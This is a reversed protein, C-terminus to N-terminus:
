GDKLRSLRGELVDLPDRIPRTDRLLAHEADSLGWAAGVHSALEREVKLRRRLFDSLTSRGAAHLPALAETDASRPSRGALKALSAAFRKTTAPLWGITKEVDAMDDSVGASGCAEATFSREWAAQEDALALLKSAAEGIRRSSAADGITMPLNEMLFGFPRLAEDKAHPLTKELFWWMLPSNLVGLLAPDASPLLFITNNIAAGVPDIAFWSHYQIDQYVIKAQGMAEAAANSPSAQLEYWAQKGARKELKTRFPSLHREIAPYRSLDVGRRLLLL